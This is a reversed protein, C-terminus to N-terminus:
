NVKKFDYDDFEILRTHQNEYRQIPPKPANPNDLDGKVVPPYVPAFQFKTHIMEKAEQGLYNPFNSGYKKLLRGFYLTADYGVLAFDRPVIGYNNQYREKFQQFQANQPDLFCETSIHLNTYEYYDFGIREFYRWQNMGFVFLRGSGRTKPRPKNPDDPVEGLAAGLSQLTTQIFNEDEFSPVIVINTAGASLYSSVEQYSLSGKTSIYQPIRAGDERKYLAYQTQIQEIRASDERTGVILFKKNYGPLKNHAYDLIQQGHARFSPSLQIYFPNEEVVENPNFPSILPIQKQAAFEAAMRLGSTSTPGIIMDVDKLEEKALIEKVIEEDRQTDYVYVQLRVGERDLDEFAMRMGEYFEVARLSRPPLEADSGGGMERAHFPMLVAVKYVPKLAHTIRKVTDKAPRLAITAVTDTQVLRGNIKLYCVVKQEVLSLTLTDCWRQTDSKVLVPPTPPKPPTVPKPSDVKTTPTNGTYVTNLQNNNTSRKFLECGFLVFLLSFSLCLAIPKM